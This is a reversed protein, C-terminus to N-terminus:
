PHYCRRVVHQNFGSSVFPSAALLRNTGAGLPNYLRTARHACRAYSTAFNLFIRAAEDYSRVVRPKNNAYHMMRLVPKSRAERQLVLQLQYESSRHVYAVWTWQAYSADEPNRFDNSPVYFMPFWGNKAGYHLCPTLIRAAEPGLYEHAYWIHSM